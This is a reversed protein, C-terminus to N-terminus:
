QIEWSKQLSPIWPPIVSTAEREKVHHKNHDSQRLAKVLEGIRYRFVQLWPVKHLLCNWKAWLEPFQLVHCRCRSLEWSSRMTSPVVTTFVIYSFPIMSGSLFGSCTPTVTRELSEGRTSRPVEWQARSRLSEVGEGLVVVTPLLTEPVFVRPSCVWIMDLGYSDVGSELPEHEEWLAFQTWEM